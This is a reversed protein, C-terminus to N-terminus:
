FRFYLFPNFSSGVLSITALLLLLLDFVYVVSIYVKRKRHEGPRDACLGGFLMGLFRPLQTSGLVCIILLPLNNLLTIHIQGNTFGAGQVGFLVGLTQGLRGMDTCYFLVWGLVVLLFTGIQRLVGPIKALVNPIHKEIYLLVFFYLGWLVFNWSAGHWLGTLMWVVLMNFFQRKRNGGLPIYVYDRFFTSLSIHWRRWFETISRSIYPLDFNESYRFGFVRGLGIAMDSYGSFDFYIQFTFMLIGLWGGVTTLSALDGDLMQSAVKGAYNAILVKKGLGICFRTVGYFISSLNIRRAAIQPEIESYRVIPGAILQPFLSVYLLFDRYSRQVSVQGRYVDIVYSLTQFTYFSIGIPLVVDPVKLSLGLHNLNEVLFGAYKFYGLLGLNLVVSAALLLKARSRNETDGIWRGFLYNMWASFLLLIVYVPEGWAYFFVSFIVLVWNKYSVSPRLFYLLICIPLFLYLCTLSSFVM